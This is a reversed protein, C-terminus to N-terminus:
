SMEQTLYTKKSYWMCNNLFCFYLISCCFVISLHVLPISSWLYQRSSYIIVFVSSLFLHDCISVLPISSSLDQRSSYIIVFVSSLFLHDCISVLPISSWLYQRSSYIVVFGSSLFLHDCISVNSNILIHIHPHM